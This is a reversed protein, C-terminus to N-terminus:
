KAQDLRLWFKYVTLTNNPGWDAAYLIDDKVCIHEVDPIEEAPIVIRGPGFDWKRVNIGANSASTRIYAYFDPGIRFQTNHGDTWYHPRFSTIDASDFLRAESSIDYIIYKGQPSTGIYWYTDYLTELFNVDDLNALPAAALWQRQQDLNKTTMVVNNGAAYATHVRLELEENYVVHETEEETVINTLGLSSHANAGVIIDGILSIYNVGFQTLVTKEHLYNDANFILYRDAFVEHQVIWDQNAAIKIGDRPDDADIGLDSQRLALVRTYNGITIWSGTVELTETQSNWTDFQRTMLLVYPAERITLEFSDPVSNCAVTITETGSYGDELDSLVLDDNQDVWIRYHDHSSEVTFILESDIDSAFNKLNDIFAVPPINYKLSEDPLPVTWVAADDVSNVDVRITGSNVGNCSLSFFKTGFYNDDRATLKLDDNIISLIIENLDYETTFVLPSDPDIVYSTVNELVTTGPTTDEDFNITPVVSWRTPDDEEHVIVTIDPSAVGNCALNFTKTGYWNEQLYTLYLDDNRIEFRIEGLDYSDVLELPSDPDSVYQSVYTLLITELDLDEPLQINPLPTWVAPEDDGSVTLTFSTPITNGDVIVTESGYWHPDLNRVKIHGGEYYAEFHTNNSSVSIDKPSDIDTLLDDINAYAVTGDSSNEAIQQDILDDWFATDDVSQVTVNLDPSPVGNCVLNMSKTGYYNDLRYTLVLSDNDVVEFKVQGLDYETQFVLDTDEDQVFTDLDRTVTTGVPTDEDFWIAPQGIWETPSDEGQVHLTFSAPVGNAELEIEIDGFYNPELNFGILDNNGRMFDLRPHNPQPIHVPDDPDEALLFLNPYIVFNGTTNEAVYQDELDQWVAPDDRCTINLAFKAATDNARVEISDTGCHQAEMNKLYLSSDAFFLTGHQYPGTSFETEGDFTIRNKIGPYVNISDTGGITGDTEEITQEQLPEWVPVHKAFPELPQESCSLSLTLIGAALLGAGARIINRPSKFANVTKAVLTDLTM